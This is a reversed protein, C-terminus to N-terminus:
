NPLPFFHYLFSFSTFLTYLYTTELVFISGRWLRLLGYGPCKCATLRFRTAALHEIHGMSFLISLSSFSLHFFYLDLMFNFKATGHRHGLLRPPRKLGQFESM